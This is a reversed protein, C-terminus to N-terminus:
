LTFEANTYYMSVGAFLCQGELNLNFGSMVTLM